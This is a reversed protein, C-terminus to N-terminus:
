DWGTYDCGGITLAYAALTPTSRLELVWVWHAGDHQGAIVAKVDIIDDVSYPQPNYDLCGALDEDIGRELDSDIM